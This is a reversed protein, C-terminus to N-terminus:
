ITDLFFISNQNLIFRNKKVYLNIRNSISRRHEITTAYDRARRALQLAKQFDGLRAEAAAMLDLLAPNRRNQQLLEKSLELGLQAIRDSENPSSILIWSYLAKNRFIEQHNELKEKAADLRGVRVLDLASQTVEREGLPRITELTEWTQTALVHDGKRSAAYALTPYLILQSPDIHLAEELLDIRTPNIQAKLLAVQKEVYQSPSNNLLDKLLRNGLPSLKDQALQVRALSLQAFPSDPFRNYSETACVRAESLNNDARHFESCLAWDRATRFGRAQLQEFTEKAKWLKNEALYLYIRNQLGERSANYHQISDILPNNPVKRNPFVSTLQRAKHAADHNGLKQHVQALLRYIENNTQNTELAKELFNFAGIPNGIVWSIRALGLFAHSSTPNITLARNYARRARNWEHLKSHFNGLDILFGHDNPALDAALSYYQSARDPHSASARAALYFWRYDLPALAAAREYCRFSLDNLGHAELTMGMAGWAPGSNRDLLLNSQAVDLVEIVEIEMSSSDWSLWPIALSTVLFLSNLM